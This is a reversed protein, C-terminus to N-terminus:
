REISPLFFRIDKHELGRPRTHNHIHVMGSISTLLKVSAM